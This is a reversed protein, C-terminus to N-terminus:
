VETPEFTEAFLKEEQDEMEVKVDAEVIGECWGGEKAELSMTMPILTKCDYRVMM